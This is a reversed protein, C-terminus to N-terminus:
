GVTTATTEKDTKELMKVTFLFFSFLFAAQSQVAETAAAMQVLTCRGEVAAQCCPLELDGRMNTEHFCTLEKNEESLQIFKSCLFTAKCVLKLMYGEVLLEM